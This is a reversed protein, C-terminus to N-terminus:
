LQVFTSVDYWSYLGAGFILIDKSNVINVAWGMGDSPPTPDNYASEVSFPTPGQPEPQFYATETQM